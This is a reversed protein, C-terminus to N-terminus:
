IPRIGRHEILQKALLLFVLPLCPKLSESFNDTTNNNEFTWERGGRKSAQQLNRLFLDLTSTVRKVRNKTNKVLLVRRNAQQVQGKALEEEVVLLLSLTWEPYVLFPCVLLKYRAAKLKHRSRATKM